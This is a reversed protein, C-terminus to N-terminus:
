KSLHELLDRHFAEMVAEHSGYFEIPERPQRECWQQFLEAEIAPDIMEILKSIVRDERVPVTNEVTQHQM